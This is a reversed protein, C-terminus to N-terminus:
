VPLHIVRVPEGPQLRTRHAELHCLASTGVLGNLLHSGEDPPLEVVGRHIRAARFEDRDGKRQLAEALPLLDEAPGPHTACQMAHLFPRVYVEFLVLVARPNGPLGIVPVGDCTAFLMPKGPKQAVGHFHVQAGLAELAPRLLDHDGVSAGGTTIVLDADHLAHCLVSRLIGADDPATFPVHGPSAGASPLAAMLMVENSGHIRGAHDMGPSIFEGGTRVVNVRPRGAVLVAEAGAAALLGIAAADFRTGAPILLAGADHGEARRRINGGALPTGKMAHVVGARVQCHEQMLVSVTGAPVQAGTFIRACQGTALQRGLVEGAALEGVCTWPGVGAAVAYGDVASMDFRPFADPALVDRAAFRHLADPLACPVADMVRVSRQLIARAERVTIM